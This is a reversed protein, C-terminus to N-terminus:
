DRSLTNLYHEECLADESSLMVSSAPAPVSKLEWFQKITKDLSVLNAAESIQHSARVVSPKNGESSCMLIWRLSTNQAFPTGVPCIEKGNRIILQYADIGLILDIAM